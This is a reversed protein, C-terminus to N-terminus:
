SLLGEKEGRLGVCHQGSQQGPPAPEGDLFQRFCRAGLRNNGGGGDLRGSCRNGGDTGKRCEGEPGRGTIAGRNSCESWGLGRDYCLRVVRIEAGGDFLPDAALLRFEGVGSDRLHSAPDEFDSSADCARIGFRCRGAAGDLGTDLSLRAAFTLGQLHLQHELGSILGTFATDDIQPQAVGVIASRLLARVRSAWSVILTRLVLAWLVLTGLVVTRLVAIWEM